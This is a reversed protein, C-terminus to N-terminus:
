LAGLLYYVAMVFIIFNIIGNGTLSNLQKAVIERGLKLTKEETEGM